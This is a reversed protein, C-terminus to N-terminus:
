ELVFSGGTKRVPDDNAHIFDPASTKRARHHGAGKSKGAAGFSGLPDRFNAVALKEAGFRSVIKMGPQLIPSRVPADGFGAHCLDIRDIDQIGSLQRHLAGEVGDHFPDLFIESLVDFGADMHQDVSISHGPMEPALRGGNHAAIAKAQANGTRGNEGFHNAITSELLQVVQMRTVAECDVFAVTGGFMQGRELAELRARFM